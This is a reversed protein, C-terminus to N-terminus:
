FNKGCLAETISLAISPKEAVMMVTCPSKVSDTQPGMAYNKRSIQNNGPGYTSSATSSGYSQEEFNDAPDDEEFEKDDWRFEDDEFDDYRKVQGADDGDDVQGDYADRDEDFPAKDAEADEEKAAPKKQYKPNM